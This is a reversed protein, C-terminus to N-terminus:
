LLSAIFLRKETGGEQLFGTNGSKQAGKWLTKHMHLSIHKHM